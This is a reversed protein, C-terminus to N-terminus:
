KKEFECSKFKENKSGMVWGHRRLRAAAVLIGDLLMQGIMERNEMPWMPGRGIDGPDYKALLSHVKTQREEVTGEDETDVGGHAVKGIKLTTPLYCTDVEFAKGEKPNRSPQLHPPHPEISIPSEVFLMNSHEHVNINMDMSDLTTM